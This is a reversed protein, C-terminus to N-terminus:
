TRYSFVAQAEFHRLFRSVPTLEHRIPLITNALLARARSYSSESMTRRKIFCTVTSLFPSPQLSVENFYRDPRSVLASDTKTCRTTKLLDHSM